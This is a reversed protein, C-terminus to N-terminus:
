TGQPQIRGEAKGLGWLRSNPVGPNRLPPRFPRPCRGPFLPAHPPPRGWAQAGEGAGPQQPLAPPRAPAGLASSEPFLALTQNHPLPPTLMRPLPFEVALGPSPAAAAPFRPPGPHPPHGAKCQSSFSTPPPWSSCFNLTQVPAAMTPAPPWSPQTGAAAEVDPDSQAVRWVQSAAKKRGERRLPALWTRPRLRPRELCKKDGRRVVRMGWPLRTMLGKGRSQVESNSNRSIILTCLTKGTRLLCCPM